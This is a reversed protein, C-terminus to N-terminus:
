LDEPRKASASGSWTSANSQYVLFVGLLGLIGSVIYLEFGEILIIGLLFNFGGDWLVSKISLNRLDSIERKGGNGYMIKLIYARIIEVWRPATWIFGDSCFIKEFVDILDFGLNESCPDGNKIVIWFDDFFDKGDFWRFEFGFNALSQLM